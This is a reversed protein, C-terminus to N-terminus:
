NALGIQLDFKFKLKLTITTNLSLLIAGINDPTAM